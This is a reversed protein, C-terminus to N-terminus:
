KEQGSLSLEGTQTKWTVLMHALNQLKKKKKKEFTLTHAQFNHLFQLMMANRLTDIENIQKVIM